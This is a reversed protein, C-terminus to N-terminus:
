AIKQNIASYVLAIECCIKGTQNHPVSNRYCTNNNLTDPAWNAQWGKPQRLCKGCLLTIEKKSVLILSEYIHFPSFSNKICILFLIGLEAERGRWTFWHFYLSFYASFPAGTCSFSAIPITIFLDAFHVRSFSFWGGPHLPLKSPGCFERRGTPSNRNWGSSNVGYILVGTNLKKRTYGQLLFFFENLTSASM